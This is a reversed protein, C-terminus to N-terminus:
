VGPIHYNKRLHRQAIGVLSYALETVRITFQLVTMEHGLSRVFENLLRLALWRDDDFIRDGTDTPEFNHIVVEEGLIPVKSGFVRVRKVGGDPFITLRVHTFVSKGTGELQFYHECHPGLQVQQLVLTWEDEKTTPTGNESSPYCTSPPFHSEPHPPIDSDSNIAHLECSQPFNGKFHATDIIVHSLHGAAGRVFNHLTLDLPCGPCTCSSLQGIRTALSDVENPRGGM